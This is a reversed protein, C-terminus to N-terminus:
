HKEQINATIKTNLFNLLFIKKDKRKKCQLSLMIFFHSLYCSMQVSIFLMQTSRHLISNLQIDIMESEGRTCYSFMVELYVAFQIISLELM